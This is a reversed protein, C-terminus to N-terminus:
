AAEACALLLGDEGRVAAMMLHIEEHNDGM